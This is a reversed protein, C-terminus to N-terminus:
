GVHKKLFALQDSVTREFDPQVYVEFHGREYTILEGKPARKAARIAPKPPTTVDKTAVQVLLPCTLKPALKGPSYQAISLFIRAAVTENFQGAKPFLRRSAEFEGPATMAALDGPRGFAPVYFPEQGLMKTILDRVAALGLRINQMPGAAMASAFGNMHPVQSIVAAINQDESTVALVHGGSFSTGWAVIKQPDVEPLSRAYQIAAHWDEHQKKINLIQRPLGDSEGFHRYDFVLAHYGAQAFREAYADLRLEKVGCFGHALVVCPTKGTKLPKYLWGRCVLGQSVFQINARAAM